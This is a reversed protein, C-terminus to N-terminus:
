KLKIKSKKEYPNRKFAERANKDENKKSEYTVYRHEFDSKMLHYDNREM